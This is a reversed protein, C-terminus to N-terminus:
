KITSGDDELIEGEEESSYLVLAAESTMVRRVHKDCTSRISNTQM